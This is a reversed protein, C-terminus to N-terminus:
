RYDFPEEEALEAMSNDAIDKLTKCEKLLTAIEKYKELVESEATPDSELIERLIVVRIDIWEEFTSEDECYQRYKKKCETNMQEISQRVMAELEEKFRNDINDRKQKWEETLQKLNIALVDSMLQPKFSQDFSKNMNNSM